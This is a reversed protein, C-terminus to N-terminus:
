LEMAISPSYNAFNFLIIQVATVCGKLHSRLTLTSMLSPYTRPCNGLFRLSIIKQIEYLRKQIEYLRKYKMYDKQIEYLRKYKMICAM